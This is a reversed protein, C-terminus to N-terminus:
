VFGHGAIESIKQSKKGWLAREDLDKVNKQNKDQKTKEKLVGHTNNEKKM